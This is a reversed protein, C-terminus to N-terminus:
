DIKKRGFCFALRALKKSSALDDAARRGRADDCLLLCDGRRYCLSVAAKEGIDLKGWEKVAKPTRIGRVVAGFGSEIALRAPDDKRIERVVAMPLLLKTTMASLLDLLGAKGLIILPAADAVWVTM